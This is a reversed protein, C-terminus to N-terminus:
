HSLRAVTVGNGGEAPEGPRIEVVEPVERLWARVASRLAGTGHGHVFRVAPVGHGLMRHLHSEARDLAEDVRLGRLDCEVDISEDPGAREIDIAGARIPAPMSSGPRRSARVRSAPVTMRVSGARVVVRDPAASAEVVVVEGRVGELTVRDGPALAGVPEPDVARACRPDEQRWVRVAELDERIRALRDRAANAARGEEEPEGRQRARQLARVVEAIERRADRYATEITADLADFREERARGLREIREEYDRRLAESRDRAERTSRRESELEARLESLIRLLDEVRREEGDLLSRAREVVEVPLGMREAVYLAASAGPVGVHLRYTPRLTRADFEASANVFRPDAGGLEKLRGFHTTAVVWAGREVLAELAAQALAAGEGPDTGEGVEDLIVFTRGDAHELIRALHRMRASFTSLGARLDQDDGIDAHVRDVLPLASGEACACHLGARAGLMALGLAKAAVTKGGANPGSVLLGRAQPALVFDSPVVEDPGLGADLLLLPHRLERLRLPADEATEPEVAWLRRSLRGRAWAVDLAELTAGLADLRPHEAGVAEGLERLLRAVEREVETRVLRLENGEEVVGEPEVFVTTGSASVDHVIGRVRSRAEAKVPLVPRGDRLAVFRDRLHLELERSRLLAQMRREIRTELERVRSRLRRLAPSADERVDGDPTVVRELTRALAGLDAMTEALAWLRPAASRRRDLFSRVREGARVTALVDAFARAGPARGRQLSALADRLDVVGALPLEEGADILRRAESTEELRALAARRTPQFLDGRCAEAGRSTAAQQALLDALRPWELRDLSARDCDFAM